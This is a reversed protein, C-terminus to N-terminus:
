EKINGCGTINKNLANDENSWWKGDMMMKGKM